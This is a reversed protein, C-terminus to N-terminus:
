RRNSCTTVKARHACELIYEALRRFNSPEGAERTVRKAIM